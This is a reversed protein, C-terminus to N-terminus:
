KVHRLELPDHLLSLGFMTGVHDLCSESTTGFLPFEMYMYRLGYQSLRANNKLKLQDLLLALGFMTGVHDWCPGFM